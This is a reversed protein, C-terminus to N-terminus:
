AADAEPAETTEAAKLGAREEIMAVLQLRLDDDGIAAGLILEAADKMGQIWAPHRGAPQQVQNADREAAADALIDMQRDPIPALDKLTAKSRGEAEAKAVATELTSTAAEADGKHARITKSALDASIKKRTVMDTVKWPAAQLRILEQLRHVTIGSKAAITKEDAGLDLLRKYVRAAEIPELKKGMNKVIQAFIRDVENHHRPTVICPVSVVDTGRSIALMTAALRCHGDVVVPADNEWFITLPTQVGYEAISMALQDIHEANSPDNPDRSNWGEKVRIKRPDVKFVDSKGLAIDKLGGQPKKKPSAATTDQDLVDDELDIQANM